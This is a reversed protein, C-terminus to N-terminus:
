STHQTNHKARWGIVLSSQVKKKQVYNKGTELQRGSSQVNKKWDYNKWTTTQVRQFVYGALRSYTKKEGTTINRGFGIKVYNRGSFFLDLQRHGDTPIIIVIQFFLYLWRWADLKLSITLNKRSISDISNSHLANTNTKTWISRICKSCLFHILEVENLDLVFGNCKLDICVIKHLILCTICIM